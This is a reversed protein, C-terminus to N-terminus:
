HHSHDSTMDFSTGHFVNNLENANAPDLERAALFDEGLMGPGQLDQASRGGGTRGSRLMVVLPLLMLFGVGKMAWALAVLLTAHPFSVALQVGSLLLAAGVAALLSRKAFGMHSVIWFLKKVIVGKAGYPVVM